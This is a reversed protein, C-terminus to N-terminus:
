ASLRVKLEDQIHHALHDVVRKLEEEDRNKMYTWIEQCQPCHAADKKFTDYRHLGKSLVSATEMLDYTQNKLMDASREGLSPKM